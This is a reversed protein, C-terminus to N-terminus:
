VVSKRDGMKPLLIEATGVIVPAHLAEAEEIVARAMEVNVTDFFGVAYGDLRANELMDKMNVLM